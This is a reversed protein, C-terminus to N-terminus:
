LLPLSHDISHGETHLTRHADHVLVPNLHPAVLAPRQREEASGGIHARHGAQEVQGMDVEVAHHTASHTTLRTTLRTPLSAHDISHDFLSEKAPGSWPM